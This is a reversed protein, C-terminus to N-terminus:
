RRVEVTTELGLGGVILRDNISIQTSFWPNRGSQILGLPYGLPQSWWVVASPLYMQPTGGTNTTVRFVFKSLKM